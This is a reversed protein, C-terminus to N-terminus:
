GYDAKLHQANYFFILCPIIAIDFYKVYVEVDEVEVTFIAAMKALDRECKELQFSSDATSHTLQM